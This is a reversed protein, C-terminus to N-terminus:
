EAWQALPKEFWHEAYPGSNYAPIERYGHRAYLARAEVLDSRTDLRVREAGLGRAAEELAALLAAGGGTGRSRPDVYVRTLEATVPDLLRVGGCALPVGDRRGVVFRGRPPALRDPTDDLMGEDIEAETVSREWYRGAVEAYYARRLVTADPTTFPEETVTWGPGQGTGPGRGVTITNKDM